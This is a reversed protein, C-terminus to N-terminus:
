CELGLRSSNRQSSANPPRARERCCECSLYKSCIRTRGSRPRPSCPTVIRVSCPLPAPPLLLLLLLAPHLMLPLRLPLPPLPLLPLDLSLIQPRPLPQQLPRRQPRSQLWMIVRRILAPRQQTISHTDAYGASPRRLSARHRQLPPSLLTLARARPTRPLQPQNTIRQRPIDRGHQQTCSDDRLLRRSRCPQLPPRPRCLARSLAAPVPPPPATALRIRSWRWASAPVFCRSRHPSATCRAPISSRPRDRDRASEGNEAMWACWSWCMAGWPTHM